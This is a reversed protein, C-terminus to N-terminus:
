FVNVQKDALKLLDNSFHLQRSTMPQVTPQNTPNTQLIDELTVDDFRASSTKEIADANEVKGDADIEM